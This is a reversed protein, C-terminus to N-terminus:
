AETEKKSLILQEIEELKEKKIPLPYSSYRGEWFQLSFHKLSQSIM